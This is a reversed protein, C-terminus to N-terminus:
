MGQHTIKLLPIQYLTELLLNKLIKKTWETSINEKNQWNREERKENVIDNKCIREELM